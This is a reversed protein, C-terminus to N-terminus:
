GRHDDAPPALESTPMDAPVGTAGRGDRAMALLAVEAPSAEHGHRLVVTGLGYDIVEIAAVSVEDAPDSAGELRRLSHITVAGTEVLHGDPCHLGDDTVYFALPYGDRVYGALVASLTTPDSPPDISPDIPM